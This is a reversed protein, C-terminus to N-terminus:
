AFADVEMIAYALIGTSPLTGTKSRHSKRLRRVMAQM